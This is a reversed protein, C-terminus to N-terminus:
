TVGASDTSSRYLFKSEPIDYIDRTIIRRQILVMKVDDAYSKLDYLNDTRECIEIYNMAHVLDTIVYECGPFYMFNTQDPAIQQKFYFPVIAPTRAMADFIDCVFHKILMRLTITSSIKKFNHIENFLVGNQLLFDAVCYHGTIALPTNGHRLLHVLIEKLAQFNDFSLGRLNAWDTIAKYAPIDGTFCENVDFTLGIPRGPSLQDNLFYRSVMRNARMSYTKVDHVVMNGDVYDDSMVANEDPVLNLNM